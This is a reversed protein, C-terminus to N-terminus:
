ILFFMRSGSRSASVLVSSGSVNHRPRSDVPYEARFLSPLRSISGSKWALPMAGAAPNEEVGHRLSLFRYFSRLASVARAVSRKALGRRLLEGMYSRVALRDLSTWTWSSAGGHYEDCFEAFSLLDRGYAKVTHPSDQREKTLFLLFEAIEPHRENTM